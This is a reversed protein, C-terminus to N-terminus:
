LIGLEMCHRAYCAALNTTFRKSHRHYFSARWKNSTEDKHVGVVINNTSKNQQNEFHSCKVLNVYRNNLKDRDLHDVHEPPFEGEMYLFVLRHLSYTKRSISVKLYGEDNVWGVEDGAKTNGLSKRRTFIGTSPSYNMIYKLYDQTLRKKM